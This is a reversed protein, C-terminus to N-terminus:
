FEGPHDLFRQCTQAALFHVAAASVANQQNMREHILLFEDRLFAVHDDFESVETLEDMVAGM